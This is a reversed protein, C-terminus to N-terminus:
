ITKALTKTQKRSVLWDDSADTTSEQHQVIAICPPTYPAKDRKNLTHNNHIYYKWADSPDMDM